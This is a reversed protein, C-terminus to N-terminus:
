LLRATKSAQTSPILPRATLPTARPSASAASTLTPPRASRLPNATATITGGSTVTLANNTATLTTAATTADVTVSGSYLKSGSATADLTLLSTDAATYAVNNVTYTGNATPTISLKTEHDITYANNAAITATGLTKTPKTLNDVVTYSGTAVGTLALVGNEDPALVKGSTPLLTVTGGIFGDTVLEAVNDGDMLALGMATFYKYTKADTGTTITFSEGDTDIGGITTFSGNAATATVNSGSAVTLTENTANLTIAATTADVTVSGAYLTASTATADLTLDGSGNFTVKNVTATNSVKVKTEYDVTYTTGDVTATGLNTTPTDLSDVVTYNGKELTSLDLVGNTPAIINAWEAKSIDIAKDTITALKNDGRKLGLATVTYTTSGITFSEGSDLGGLTTFSGEAATATISGSAVSLIENTAALTTANVTVTGDYLTAGDTTADITLDGSGNFTVSNVTATNSVKVKTKYNVTYTTGNVTAAGLNTTPNELSDVVTYTGNTTPMTLVDNTPAIMDAWTATSIDISGNDLTALKNDDRTLGIATATYNNSGLSFTDGSQLDAITTAKGEVATVNISSASGATLTGDVSLTLTGSAAVTVTGAYLGTKPADSATTATTILQLATTGTFADGNVTVTGAGVSVTGNYDVTYTNNAAVTVTGLTPATPTDLSNVVTYTGITTPLALVNNADPAIISGWTASALTISDGDITALKSEDNETKILGIATMKYNVSGISFTDGSDLAGITTLKGETATATIAGGKTVTLSESTAALTTDSSLAAVTVTGDSLTSSEATTDFTLANADAATYRVGNVTYNTDATPTFSITAEYDVTYTNSGVTVNGSKSTPSDVSDVVLYSGAAVTSLDLAANEAPAALLGKWTTTSATLASVTLMSSKLSEAITKTKGDDRLLGFTTMTYTTSGVKFGEGTELDGITVGDLTITVGDKTTTDEVYSYDVGNITLTGGNLTITGSTPDSISLTGKTLTLAGSEKTATLTADATVTVDYDVKTTASTLVRFGTNATSLTITADATTADYTPLLAQDTTSIAKPTYLQNDVTFKVGRPDNISNNNVTVTAKSIDTVTLTAGDSFPDGSAATAGNVTVLDTYVADKHEIKTTGDLAYGETTTLSHYTATSKEADLVWSMTPNAPAEATPADTGLALSYNETDGGLTVDKQDLSAAGVTVTTGDISIGDLSKIGVLTIVGDGATLNSLTVSAGDDGATVNTYITYTTADNTTAATTLGFDKMTYTTGGIIVSEGSDLGGVATFKGGTATATVAGGKVLVFSDDAAAITVDDTATTADVTITGAYLAATPDTDGDTATTTLTLATSGDFITGNVTVTGSAFDVNGAYDVTYTDGVTATGFKTTPTTLSDVIVYDGATTATLDLTTVGDTTVPALLAKWVTTEATLTAVTLSDSTLADAVTKTTGDYRILGFETMTYTLDGIKFGEGTSLGGITAGDLAITIGDTTTSGKVYSYDVGGITLTGGNLTISGTTPDTISMTGATLTLAGSSQAANLTAAATVTVAYDTYATSSTLVRLGGDGVSLNITAAASSVDATVLLTQAETTSLAKPTYRKKDTDTGAYFNTGLLTLKTTDSAFFAPTKGEGVTITAGDSSTPDGSVATVGNVTYLSGGEADSYTISKTDSALTYGETKTVTQYKATFTAGNVVWAAPMNTPETTPTIEVSIEDGTEQLIGNITTGKGYTITGAQGGDGRGIGAGINSSATVNATGGITIKGVVSNEGSGIGAGYNASGTVKASGGITINGSTASYGSGIGAGQYATVDVKVSGGINIAGVTQNFNSGIGAGYAIGTMDVKLSGDGIINLTGTYVRIASTNPNGGYTNTLTNTGKVTLYNDGGGFEILNRMGNSTSLNLDQIWLNISEADYANIYAESLTVNSDGIIKVNKVGDNITVTGSFDAAFKYIGDASITYGNTGSMTTMPFTKAAAPADSGLALTYNSDGSITVTEQNLSAAGVTFTKNDGLTVGDLSKLGEIKVVGSTDTKTLESLAIAKDKVNTYITYVNTDGSKESKVLGYSKVTYTASDTGTYLTLTEDVDLDGLVFSYGSEGTITADTRNLSKETVTITKGSISVGTLSKLGDLQIVGEVNSGNVDKSLDSINFAGETLGTYVTYVPETGGADTKVVGYGTVTYTIAGDGSGLTFTENENLGGLATFKGETATATIAGGKGVTLTDSQAEFTLDSDSGATLSVTGEVLKVSSATDDTAPKAEVTIATTANFAVNDITVNGSAVKIKTSLIAPEDATDVVSYSTVGSEVTITADGIKTEFPKTLDSVVIYNGAELESMDLVGNEDPAIFSSGLETGVTFVGGVFGKTDVVGLIKDGDIQVLGTGEVYRYTKTATGDNITFQEGNTDIGSVTKFKGEEATVTAKSGQAITVSDVTASFTIEADTADLEVSGTYLVATAAATETKPTTQLTLDDTTVFTSGNVEVTGKAVTIRGDYEASYVVNGSENVSIKIEGSKNTPNTTSDVVYYTGNSVRLLDVTGGVPALLKAWTKRTLNRYTISDTDGETWETAVSLTGDDKKILGMTSMTYTLSGLSDPDGYTFSEGNNDLGGISYVGGNSFNVTIATNAGTSIEDDTATVTANAGLSVTGAKLTATADATDTKKTTTFTLADTGTLTTGNITVTGIPVKVDGAYDVTYTTGEITVTGLNSTPNTLSNVVTYTGAATSSLDLVDNTPAIIDTWTLDALTVSSVGVTNMALKNDSRMLGLATVTYTQADDGSGITFSEGNTDLGGVTTFSGNTATVTISTNAGATLTGDTTATVSGGNELSVTGTYLTATPTDGSTTTLTLATTGVFVSSNVTSTGSAMSVTGGYNVTYNKNDAVTVTGYKDTPATPSNVIIYNGTATTTSLDLATGSAPSQLLSYWVTTEATLDAVTVSDGTLSEALMTNGDGDYRMLGLATRTYTDGNFVFSEGEAIGGITVAGNEARTITIGDTDTADVTYSYTNGDVTLIGGTVTVTYSNPTSISMAGASLTLAGTTQAATLTAAATVAVTYDVYGAETNDIVRFTTDTTALSITTASTASSADYTAILNQATTDNLATPTYLQNNYKFRVGLPTTATPIDDTNALVTVTVNNITANSYTATNLTITAGDTSFPDGSVELVAYEAHVLNSLVEASYTITTNGALTYGETTTLKSYNSSWTGNGNWILFAASGPNSSALDTLLADSTKQENTIYTGKNNVTTGAGYTVTGASSTYGAGIGAAYSSATATVRATGGITIKGISGGSYGSGIAAGLGGESQDLVSLRGGSRADITVSGGININGGTQNYDSGIAAGYDDSGTMQATLSGDGIINLTGSGVNILASDNSNASNTLTNTGKVTLTNTGSGFKILNTDQASSIKLYQIWLNAGEVASADISVNTLTSSAGIIKVNKANITVTGTFGESFQYVGDESITSNESTIMTPEVTPTTATPADEALALTYGEGTLNVTKQVLSANGISVTSGSISVGDIGGIGTLTIVGTDGDSKSLESLNIAGNTVGTYVTYTGDVVKAVCGNGATYTTGGYIFSDGANLNGISTFTGNIATVSISSGKVITLSGFEIDATATSADVAVTGNYLTSSDATTNFTLASTDVATYNVGNISFTDDAASPTYAVTLEGDFTFTNNDAVTLVGYKKTPADTSDVVTYSGAEVSTLTLVENTDVAILQTWNLDDITTEITIDADPETGAAVQMVGDVTRTLSVATMTYTTDGIKIGEGTSLGGITAGDFSVTVGDTTDTGAVYSYNVNNVTITGGNLNVSGTTPATFNFTGRALTLTGDTAATIYNNTTTASATYDSYGSADIVRFTGDTTSLSFGADTASADHTLILASGESTDVATPTYLNEEADTFKLTTPDTISTDIVKVTVKSFDDATISAGNQALPNGSIESVGDVQCIDQTKAANYTLVNEAASFGESTDVKSGVFTTSTTADPTWTVEVPNTPDDPATLADVDATDDSNTNGNVKANAGIKVNGITSGGSDADIPEGGNTTTTITANGGVTISNITGSTGTGIGSGSGNNNVTIKVEDGINIAEADSSGIVAGTAKSNSLSASLTGSGVINLTGSGVDIAANAGTSSKSFSNEGEVVLTNEGDGFKIM